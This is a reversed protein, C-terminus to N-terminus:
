GAPIALPQFTNVSFPKRQLQFRDAFLRRVLAARQFPWLDASWPGTENPAVTRGLLDRYFAALVAQDTGGASDAYAASAYRAVRSRWPEPLDPLPALEPPPAPRRGAAALAAYEPSALMAQAWRSRADAALADHWATREADTPRRGVVGPYVAAIWADGAVPGAEPGVLDGVALVRVARPGVRMHGHWSEPLAHTVATAALGMVVALQWLPRGDLWDFAWLGLAAGTLVVLLPNPWHVLAFVLGCALSTGRRGLGLARLRAAPVALFVTLQVYAYLPYLALSVLTGGQGAAAAAGGAALGGVGLPLLIIAADAALRVPRPRWPRRGRARDLSRDRWALVALATGLAGGAIWAAPGPGDAGLVLWVGSLLLPHLLLEAFPRQRGLARAHSAAAFLLLAAAAAAVVAVPGALRVLPPWPGPLPWSRALEAQALSVAQGGLVAALCAAVWAAAM